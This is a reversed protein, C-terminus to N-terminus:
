EAPVSVGPNRWLFRGLAVAGDAVILLGGAAAFYELRHTWLALALDIGAAAFSWPRDVLMTGLVAAMLMAFRPKSIRAGSVYGRGM